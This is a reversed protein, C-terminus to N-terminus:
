QFMGIGPQLTADGFTGARQRQGVAVQAFLDGLALADLAPQFVFGQVVRQGAQGVAGQQQLPQLLRHLAVDRVRAFLEGHQEDVQVAELHDVIRDTVQDAVVQQELDAAADAGAQLRAVDDRAQAAVFERHQQFADDLGVLRRQDGLADDALQLRREPEAGLLDEGRRRDADGQGARM